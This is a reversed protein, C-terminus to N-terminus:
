HGLSTIYSIGISIAMGGTISSSIRAAYRNAPLVHIPVPLYIPPQVSQGSADNQNALLDHEILLTAAAIAAGNAGGTGVAIVEEVDGGVGAAPIGINLAVLWQEVVLITSDIIEDWAADDAVAIGAAATPEQLYRTRDSGVVAQYIAALKEGSNPM